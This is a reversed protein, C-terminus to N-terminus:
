TRISPMEFITHKYAIQRRLPWCLGSELREREYSMVAFTKEVFMCVSIAFLTWLYWISCGLGECIELRQIQTAKKDWINRTLMRDITKTHVKNHYICCFPDVFNTVHLLGHIPSSDGLKMRCFKDCTVSWSHILIRGTPRSLIQWMYCGMFSHVTEWNWAVFNTM